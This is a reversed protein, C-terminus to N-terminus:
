AFQNAEVFMYFKKQSAFTYAEVFIAHMNSAVSQAAVIVDNCTNPSMHQRVFSMM